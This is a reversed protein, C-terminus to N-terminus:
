LSNFIGWIQDGFLIKLQSIVNCDILCEAQMEASKPLKNSFRSVSRYSLLIPHFLVLIGVNQHRFQLHLTFITTTPSLHKSFQLCTQCYLAGELNAYKKSGRGWENGITFFSKTITRFSYTCDNLFTVSNSFGHPRM